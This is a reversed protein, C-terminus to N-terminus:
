YVPSGGPERYKWRRHSWLYQEPNDRIVSEAKRVYKNMIEEESVAGPNDTLLEFTVEYFGRRTRKVEQFFVPHGFRRALKAPGNFFMTEQNLFETWFPHNWPPAQDAGLWILVPRQEREAELLKRLALSMSVTEGGFKERIRNLYRDFIENRLPKYVFFHHHKLFFPMQLLWEWNGAHIAMVIVSRGKEFWSNVLEPNKYMMRRGLQKPTMAGTKVIEAALDCLYRYYNRSTRKLEGASKDPFSRSLNIMVVKRRYRVLHYVVPFMLDSFLYLVQLPLISVLKLLAIGAYTGTKSLM